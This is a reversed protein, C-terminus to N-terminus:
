AAQLPLVQTTLDADNLIVIFGREPESRVVIGFSQEGTLTNTKAVLAGTKPFHKEAMTDEM